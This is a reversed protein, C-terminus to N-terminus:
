VRKWVETFSPQGLWLTAGEVLPRGRRALSAPRLRWQSRKAEPVAEGWHDTPKLKFLSRQM